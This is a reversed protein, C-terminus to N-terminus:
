GAAAMGVVPKNLPTSGMSGYFGASPGFAFIGGDSAVLWYGNGEPAAAMGVIPRNLHISGTSGFFQASPGFSFIGGDSAVLWYGNGDPAAAMGVVPNNLPTAGTSGFYTASPGFAFIGGDSAVLWYGNGDPAAAMGVIPRNLHIAGASGYFHASPGFSFIGGDSAVLWYGNGDPAAAMGVIPANLHTSGMSGFFPANFAFVGGDSAVLWYGGTTPDKAMGVIPANLHIAGTSGHFQAGPGFSFIGGDSAVLWYGAPAVSSTIRQIVTNSSNGTFNGDGSYTASVSRDGITGYSVTCTATTRGGSTALPQSVCGAIPNGPDFFEVTGTPTGGGPPAPAVTATYTVAQGVAAPNPSTTVTVTTAAQHVTQSVSSSQPSASYNLDGNYIATVSDTGLALQTTSCTATTSGSATAVTVASCDALTNGGSQFTVNGTPPITGSTTPMVTATFSVPQGVVSPDPSGVSLSTTTSAQGVTEPLASTTASGAFNMDSSYTATIPHNGASNYTVTCTATTHGGATALPRLDCGTITTGGDAFAVTGTPTGGGPPAPAVTATYTVPHGLSAPNASSGLGTTTQAKNVTQSAGTSTSSGSYNTDGSYTATVTDSGVTLDHTNCTATTNGGTTSVAVSNCDALAIGNASFAVTGSPPSAVGPPPAITAIFAVSQGYVSPNPSGASITTTTSAPNVTQAVGHATTSTAYNGDGSYTATVTDAGGPLDSTNCTATTSGATTSVAVAACDALGHGNASFAVTGTPAVVNATNSGTGAVTATFMVPQGYTSPNPSGAGITTTTTQTNIQEPPSLQASNGPFTSDGSYTATIANPGGPLADTTHCVAQLGSITVTNGTGNCNITVPNGGHSDTFKVTGTPSIPGSTQSVIATLTVLQGYTAPNPAAMVTMNTTVNSTLVVDGPYTITFAYAFNNETVTAGSALGTFTGSHTGSTNSIVSYNQLSQPIFCPAASGTKDTSVSPSGGNLTVAGSTVHVRDYGSCTTGTGPSTGDIRLLLTGANFTLTSATLVGPQDADTLNQGATLSTTTGPALTGSVVTLPGVLGTGTLTGGGVTVHSSSLNGTLDLVGANVAVPGTYTSSNGSIVLAVCPNTSTGSVCYNPGSAPGALTLGGPTGSIPGSIILSNSTQVNLAAGGPDPQLGSSIVAPVGSGQSVLSTSVTLQGPGGTSMVTPGSNPSTSNLTLDHVTTPHNLLDVSGTGIITLGSSPDLQGAQLLSVSAGSDITLAGPTAKGSDGLALTGGIVTTGATYSNDASGALTVTGATTPNVSLPGNGTVLGSVTLNAGPNSSLAGGNLMVTGSLLDNADVGLVRGALTIPQSITLPTASPGVQLLAGTGVAVADTAAGLAASNTVQLAGGSVSFQANFNTANNNTIVLTGPGGVTVTPGPAILTPDSLTGTIALTNGGSVSYTINNQLTQNFGVFPNATASVTAPATATGMFVANGQLTYAGGISLTNITLNNVDNNTTGTVPLSPFTLSVCALSTPPTLGQWNLPDSWNNNHGIAVDNGTWTFPTFSSCTTASAPPASMVLGTATGMLGTAAALAGLAAGARRGVRRNGSIGIM